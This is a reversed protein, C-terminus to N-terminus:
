REDFYIGLSCNSDLLPLSPVLVAPQSVLASQHIGIRTALSQIIWDSSNSFNFQVQSPNSELLFLGSHVAMAEQAKMLWNQIDLPALPQANLCIPFETGGGATQPSVSGPTPNIKVPQLYDGSVLFSIDTKREEARREAPRLLRKKLKPEIGEDSMPRRTLVVRKRAGTESGTLSGGKSKPQTCHEETDMEEAEKRFVEKVVAVEKAESEAEIRLAEAAEVDRRREDLSCKVASILASSQIKVSSVSSSTTEELVPSPPLGTISESLSMYPTIVIETKDPNPIEPSTQNPSPCVTRKIKMKSHASDKQELGPTKLISKGLLRNSGKQGIQESNKSEKSLLPNSLGDALLQSLNNDVTEPSVPANPCGALLELFVNKLGSTSGAPSPGHFVTPESTSLMDMSASSESEIIQRETVDSVLHSSSPEYTYSNNLDGKNSNEDEPFPLDISDLPQIVSTTTSGFDSQSPNLLPAGLPNTFFHSTSNPRGKVNLFSSDPSDFLPNSPTTQVHTTIPPKSTKLASTANSSKDKKQLLELQRQAREAKAISADKAFRRTSSGSARLSGISPRHDGSKNLKVSNATRSNPFPRTTSPKLNIGTSSLLEASRAVPGAPMRQPMVPKINTEELLGM